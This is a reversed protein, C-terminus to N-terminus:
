EVEVQIEEKIALFVELNDKHIEEMGTEEIVEMGDIETEKHKTAMNPIIRAKIIAKNHHQHGQVM